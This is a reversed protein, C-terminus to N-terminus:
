GPARLSKCADLSPTVNAGNEDITPQKPHKGGWSVDCLYARGGFRLVARFNYSRSGVARNEWLWWKGNALEGSDVPKSKTHEDSGKTEAETEALQADYKTDDKAFQVTVNAPTGDYFLQTWYGVNVGPKSPKLALGAPLTICFAPDEHATAGEACVPAPAPAADIAAAAASASPSASPSASASPSPSDSGGVGGSVSPSAEGGGGSKKKGCGLAFAVLLLAIRRSM